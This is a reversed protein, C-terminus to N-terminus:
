GEPLGLGVVIGARTAAHRERTEGDLSGLCSGTCTLVSVQVSLTSLHPSSQVDDESEKGRWYKRVNPSPRPPVCSFDNDKSRSPFAPQAPQAGQNHSM